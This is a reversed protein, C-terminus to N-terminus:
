PPKGRTNVPGWALGDGYYNYFAANTNSVPTPTKALTAEVSDQKVRIAVMEKDVEELRAREAPSLSSGTRLRKREQELGNASSALTRQQEKVENFITTQENAAPAPLPNSEFGGKDIFGFGGGMYIRQAARKAVYVLAGCAANCLDDHFNHGPIHDITDRGGRVTYRQLGCLQGALRSNDLLEVRHSNILPLFNLYIDSKALVARNYEVGHAAFREVPWLKAYNDGFCQTLGYSKIIACFQETVADPSFPSKVERVLDLIVRSGEVHAISLTMSDSGGGSPDVFALYYRGEVYQLEYRGEITAAAVVARSIYDDADTRFEAGYEATASAADDEYAADIFRQPVSPNMVRTPARWYLVASDQKGFHRRNANWMEGRQAYPSSACLM